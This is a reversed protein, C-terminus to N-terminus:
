ENVASFHKNTEVSFAANTSIERNLALRLNGRWLRNDWINTNITESGWTYSDGYSDIFCQPHFEATFTGVVAVKAELPTRDTDLYFAWALGRHFQATAAFHRTHMKALPYDNETFPVFLKHTKGLSVKVDDIFVGSDDSLLATGSFSHGDKKGASAILMRRNYGYFLRKLHARAPASYKALDVIARITDKTPNFDDGFQLEYETWRTDNDFRDEFIEVDFGLWSLAKKIAWPTGKKYHWLFADKLAQRKVSDNPLCDWLQGTLHLHKALHPLNDSAVNDIQHVIIPTLNLGEFGAMLHEIAISRADKAQPAVLLSKQTAM